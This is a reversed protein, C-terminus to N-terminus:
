DVDTGNTTGQRLAHGYGGGRMGERGVRGGGGIEGGRLGGVWDRSPTLPPSLSSSAFVVGGGWVGGKGRLGCVSLLLRTCACCCFGVMGGSSIVNLVQALFFLLFCLTWVCVAVFFACDCFCCCCRCSGTGIRWISYFYCVLLRVSREIVWATNLFFLLM